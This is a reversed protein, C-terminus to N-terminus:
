KIHRVNNRRLKAVTPLADCAYSKSKAETIALRSKSESKDISTSDNMKKLKEGCIRLTIEHDVFIIRIFNPRLIILIDLVFHKAFNLKLYIIYAVMTIM